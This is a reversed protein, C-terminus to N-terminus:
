RGARQHLDRHEKLGVGFPKGRRRQFGAFFDPVMAMTHPEVGEDLESGDLPLLIRDHM